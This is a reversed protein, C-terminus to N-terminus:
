PCSRGQTFCEFDREVDATWSTHPDQGRFSWPIALPYGQADAQRLRNLVSQGTDKLEPWIDAQSTAFEGVIGPYNPDFGSRELTKRGAPYHHFQNIEATIGTARLTDISAFGITPKLGAARIRAKGAELFAQMSTADVPHNTPNDPNWTNTIWEPENIVEWAYIVAAHAQSVRLLPDFAQELFRQRKNTDTIADARGQKVWGPYPNPVQPKEADSGPDCFHFDIFVPLLQIPLSGARNVNEFRQLLEEFHQAIEPAPMPPDFRWEGGATADAYPASGGTGYTLGDGLIFWRVVSIGLSQFRQLHSDIEGYWRPDTQTSRWGPPAVGFDWGYDFWPYNVGVTM